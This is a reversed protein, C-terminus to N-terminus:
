GGLHQKRYRLPTTGLFRKFQRHFFPLSSFGCAQAVDSVALDTALLLQGARNIRYENLVHFFPRGMMKRFFRNFAQESLHVQQAVERLQIKKQYNLEIFRHVRQMRNGDALPLQEQYTAASLTQYRCGTLQILISLLQLYREQPPLQPLNNIRTRLSAVDEAVFLLGRGARQM